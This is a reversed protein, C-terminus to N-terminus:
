GIPTSGERTRRKAGHLIERYQEALRTVDAAITWAEARAERLTADPLPRVSKAANCTTCAATLNTPDDGDGAIIHDVTDAERGCYFCRDAHFFLVARRVHEPVGM